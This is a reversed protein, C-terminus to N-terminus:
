VSSLSDRCILTTRSAADVNTKHRVTVTKRWASMACSRLGMPLIGNTKHWATMTQHWATVACSRLGEYAADADTKLWATVSQHWATVACSHLGMRLMWMPQPMCPYAWSRKAFKRGSTTKPVAVPQSCRFLLGMMGYSVTHYRVTNHWLISDLM